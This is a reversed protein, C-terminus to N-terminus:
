LCGEVYEVSPELGGRIDTITGESEEMVLASKGDSSKLILYHGTPDYHHPLVLLGPHKQQIDQAKAGVVPGFSSHIDTSRTDARTVIGQEVMFKISPYEKFTVYDCDMDGTGITARQGLKREIDVLKQGFVVHGYSLESLVVRNQASAFCGLGLLAITFSATVIKRNM